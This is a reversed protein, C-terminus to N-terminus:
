ESLQDLLIYSFPWREALIMKSSKSEKSPMPPLSGLFIFTTLALVFGPIILVIRSWPWEIWIKSTSLLLALLISWIPDIVIIILKRLGQPGFGFIVMEVVMLPIMIVLMPNTILTLLLAVVGSLLTKESQVRSLDFYGDKM